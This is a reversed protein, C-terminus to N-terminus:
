PVTVFDVFDYELSITLQSKKKENEPVFVPVYVKKKKKKPQYYYQPNDFAHGPKSYRDQDEHYYGTEQYHDPEPYYASRSKPRIKYEDGAHDDHESGDENDDDYTYYDDDDDDDDFSKADGDNVGRVEGDDHRSTV